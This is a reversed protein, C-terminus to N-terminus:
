TIEEETLIDIVTRSIIKGATIPAVKGPLSLAWIVRVSHKRAAERDVGGPKSALDIILADHPLAKLVEDTFLVFPVTNFIVDYRKQLSSLESTDVAGFGYIRAETRDRSKRAAIDVEAGLSKLDHALLRAIRGFGVVLANCSHLTIDMERLALEIAGEATPVANLLTLEESDLYDRIRIGQKQALSYAAPDFKGGLLLTGKNLKLFFEDVTISSRCNIRSSDTNYPIGLIVADASELASSLDDHVTYEESAECESGFVGVTYGAEALERATVLLRMDSGIVEIKIDQIM